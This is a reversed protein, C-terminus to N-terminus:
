VLKLRETGPVCHGILYGAEWEYGSDSHEFVGVIHTLALM